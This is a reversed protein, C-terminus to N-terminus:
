SREGGESNSVTNRKFHRRSLLYVVTMIASALIFLGCLVLGYSVCLKVSLSLCLLGILTNLLVPVPTSQNDTVFRLLKVCTAVFLPLLCSAALTTGNWINRYPTLAIHSDLPIMLTYFLLVLWVFRYRDIANEGLPFLAQGISVYTCVFFPIIFVPLIIHILTTVDIGTITSSFAWFLHLYGPYASTDTYASGTAPNVSFFSDGALSLRALEPTDDLAHPVLFLVGLGILILTVIVTIVAERSFRMILSKGHSKAKFLGYVICLIAIITIVYVSLKWYRVLRTYSVNRHFELAALLEFLALYIVYGTVYMLPLNVRHRALSAVAFGIMLPLLAYLYATLIIARIM